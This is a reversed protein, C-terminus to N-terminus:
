TVYVFREGSDTEFYSDVTGGSVSVTKLEGPHETYRGRYDPAVPLLVPDNEAGPVVCDVEATRNQETVPVVEIDSVEVFDDSRGLSLPRQPNELGSEFTTLLDDPGGIYVRYTPAIITEMKAVYTVYSMESKNIAKQRSRLGTTQEGADVVRIGFQCDTQVRERFDEENDRVEKDLNNPKLLSPRGLANYLLGQLTTIPPVPYTPLGNMAGAKLFGCEFPVDLTATLASNTM